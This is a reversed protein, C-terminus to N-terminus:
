RIRIGRYNHFVLHVLNNVTANHKIIFVLIRFHGGKSSRHFLCLNLRMHTHETTDSEKHGKPSYGVLFERDMSNELCSYQLPNVNVKGTSRGLMPISGPDGVNCASEVSQAM